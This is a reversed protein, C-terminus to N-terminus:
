NIATLRADEEYVVGQPHRKMPILEGKFKRLTKGRYVVKLIFETDDDGYEYHYNMTIASTVSEVKIYMNNSRIQLVDDKHYKANTEGFEDLVVVRLVENRRQLETISLQLLRIGENEKDDIIQLAAICDDQKM